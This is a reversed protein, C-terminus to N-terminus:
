WRAVRGLRPVVSAGPTSTMQAAAADEMSIAGRARTSTTFLRQRVLTSTRLLFSMNIATYYHRLYHRTHNHTKLITTNTRSIHQRQIHLQTQYEYYKIALIHSLIPRPKVETTHHKISSKYRTVHEPSVSWARRIRVTYVAAEHPSIYATCV